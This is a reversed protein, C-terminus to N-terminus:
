KERVLVWLTAYLVSAILVALMTMIVLGRLAALEYM